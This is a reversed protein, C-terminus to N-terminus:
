NSTMDKEHKKRLLRLTLIAGRRNYHIEQRTSSEVIFFPVITAFTFTYLVM